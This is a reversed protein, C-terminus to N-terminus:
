YRSNEKPLRYYLIGPSPNEERQAWLCISAALHLALKKPLKITVTKNKEMEQERTFLIDFVDPSRQKIIEITGDEFDEKGMQIQPVTPSPEQQLRLKPTREFSKRTRGVAM